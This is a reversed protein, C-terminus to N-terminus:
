SVELQMATLSGVQQRHPEGAPEVQLRGGVKAGDLRELQAQSQAQAQLQARAQAQGQAQALAQAEAYGEIASRLTHNPVLHRHSLALNTKPSTDSQALWAEIQAREYSHGDACIVPDRM